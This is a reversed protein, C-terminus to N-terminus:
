AVYNRVHSHAEMNEGQAIRSVRISHLLDHCIPPNPRQYAAKGHWPHEIICLVRHVLVLQVLLLAHAPTRAERRKQAIRAFSELRGVERM